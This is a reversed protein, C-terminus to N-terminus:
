KGKGKPARLGKYDCRKEEVDGEKLDGHYKHVDVQDARITAEMPVAGSSKLRRAIRAKVQLQNAENDEKIQKGPWGDGKLIFQTPTFVRHMKSSVGDKKCRPCKWTKPIRSRISREISGLFDCKDCEYEYTPM